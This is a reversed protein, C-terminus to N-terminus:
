EDPRVSRRRGTRDKAKSQGAIRELAANANLLKKAKYANCDGVSTKSSGIAEAIERVTWGVSEPKKLFLDVVRANVSTRAETASEAPQEPKKVTETATAADLSLIWDILAISANPADLLVSYFEGPLSEPWETSAVIEADRPDLSPLELFVSRHFKWASQSYECAGGYPKLCWRATKLLPIPEKNELSRWSTRFLIEIFAAHNTLQHTMGVMLRDRIPSPLIPLLGAAADATEKFRDWRQKAIKEQAIFEANRQEKQGSALSYRHCTSFIAGSRRLAGNKHCWLGIPQGFMARNSRNAHGSERTFGQAPFKPDFRQILFERARGNLVPEAESELWVIDHRFNDAADQDALKLFRERIRNLSRQLLEDM